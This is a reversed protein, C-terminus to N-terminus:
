SLIILQKAPFGGALFGWLSYLQSVQPFLNVRGLWKVVWWRIWVPSFGFSHARQSFPKSVFRDRITMEFGVLLSSRLAGESTTCTAWCKVVECGVVSMNTDRMCSCLGGCSTFAGGSLFVCVRRSCFFRLPCVLCTCTCRWFWWGSKLRSRLRRSCSCTRAPFRIGNEDRCVKNRTTLFVNGLHVSLVPWLDSGSKAALVSKLVPVIKAQERDNRCAKAFLRAADKRILCSHKFDVQWKSKDEAVSFTASELLM